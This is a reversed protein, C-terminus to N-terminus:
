SAGGIIGNRLIFAKNLVGRAEGGWSGNSSLDRGRGRLRRCLAVISLGENSARTSGRRAPVQVAAGVATLAVRGVTVKAEPTRTPM